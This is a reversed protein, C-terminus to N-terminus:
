QGEAGLDVAPGTRTCGLGVFRAGSSGRKKTIRKDAAEVRQSFGNVAPLRQSEFGQDRAWRMFMRYALSVPTEPVFDNVAYTIEDSELWGLVPDSSYMWERLADASSAPTTFAQAALVRSAGRVAWDLLLDAEEEGVRQGIGELREAKPIVRNCTLVMLRRRVGRDMGGKFTPLVNTAYVHRACPEFEFAQRYVDRVTLKDGTVIQKFIDSTIAEAAGLEDPANLLKGVLHCTFTRDAFKGPSISSVATAPLLARLLALVQSKGNEAHKGFCVLAKPEVIRTAAGVAAIGAVEALL